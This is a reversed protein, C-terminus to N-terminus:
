SLFNEGDEVFVGGRKQRLRCFPSTTPTITPITTPTITTTPAPSQGARTSLFPYSSNRLPSRSQGGSAPLVTPTHLVILFPAADITTPRPSRVGGCSLLFHHLIAANAASSRMENYPDIGVDVRQVAGRLRVRYRCACAGTMGLRHACRRPFGRGWRCPTICPVAFPSRIAAGTVDTVPECHCIQLDKREGLGNTKPLAQTRTSTPM